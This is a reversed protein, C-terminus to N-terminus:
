GDAAVRALAFAVPRRAEWRATLAPTLQPAGESLARAARNVVAVDVRRVPAGELAAAGARHLAERLARAGALDDEDPATGDALGAEALWTALAAPDPLREEPDQSARRGVTGVLDLALSGRHFSFRM